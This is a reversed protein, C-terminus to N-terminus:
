SLQAASPLLESRALLQVEGGVRVQGDAGVQVDLQSPRRLFRGQHLRFSEGSRNLGRAVRWAAVPGAASGTAIDEIVGEPDWTRGEAADVDMLFVFAAGLEDLLPQLNERQRAKALGASSVPLLVYPLGTSVVQAPHRSDYDSGFAQALWQAQQVNLVAGFEANGQNMETYFGSGRRQSSLPVTKDRLQLHWRSEHQDGAHLHHLLAAAGLLPHGAFPLEEEATFIHARFCDASETPLLFISEFQRLEITLAQMASTSLGRADAFVTLGNGALPRDAFVDLQWYQM